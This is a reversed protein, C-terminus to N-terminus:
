VLVWGNCVDFRKKETENIPRVLKDTGMKAVLSEADVLSWLPGLTLAVEGVLM